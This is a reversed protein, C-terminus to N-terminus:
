ERTRCRKRSREPAATPSSYCLSEAPEPRLRRGALAHRTQDSGIGPDVPQRKGCICSASRGDFSRLSVWWNSQEHEIRGVCDSEGFARDDCDRPSRDVLVEGEVMRGLGFGHWKTAASRASHCETGAPRHPIRSNQQYTGIWSKSQFAIEWPNEGSQRSGRRDRIRTATAPPQSNRAQCGSPRGPRPTRVSRFRDHTAM